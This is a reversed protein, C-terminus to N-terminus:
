NFRKLIGNFAYFCFNVLRVTLPINKFSLYLKFTRFAIIFKNGSIQGKRIRYSVLVNDLGNAVFKKSLLELWLYTDQRTRMHHFMFEGVVEKNILSTSMGIETNRMYSNLNVEKSVNVAGSLPLGSEDIFNYSTHVIASNNSFMYDIQKSLKEPHWLDDADIFAILKAQAYKLGTNRTFGAGSNTDNKYIKINKNVSYRNILFEYTGDDSCDDIIILEWDLYSQNIVSSITNEIFGISNYVPLIISVNPHSLM